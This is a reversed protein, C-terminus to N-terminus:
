TATPAVVTNAPITAANTSVTTGNAPVAAAASGLGANTYPEPDTEDDSMIIPRSKVRAAQEARMKAIVGRTVDDDRRLPAAAKKAAPTKKAAAAPKKKTAGGKKAPATRPPPQVETLPARKSRKAPPPAIDNDDSDEGNDNENNGGTGTGMPEEEGISGEAAKRKKGFDSRRERQKRLRRGAAVDDEYKKERDIREQATLKVFTCTDAKLAALLEQLPALATSLESPNKFQPMTWGVMKVGHALVIDEEYNVYQMEINDRGTIAHLKRRVEDRIERKIYDAKQKSTRLLNMVDCGAIAFAELKSGVEETNWTKRAAIRMYDELEPSTFYWQPKIHFDTNNRVICFFGEAGVRSNLGVLLMQMNRVINSLDQIRGRPTDRRVKVVRDRVITHGDKLVKKEEETLSRYEDIYREHFQEPTLEEGAERSEAAKVTKWANYPNVEDQHNIMHAGGQFLVDLFYRQTRKFRTALEDAKAFTESVWELVAQDQQDRREEREERKRTREETSLPVRPKPATNRVHRHSAAAITTYSTPM